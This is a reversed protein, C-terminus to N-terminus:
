DAISKNKVILTMECTTVIISSSTTYLECQYANRQAYQSFLEMLYDFCSEKMFDFKRRIHYSLDEPYIRKVKSPKVYEEGIVLNISYDMMRSTKGLPRIYYLADTSSADDEILIMNLNLVRGSPEGIVHNYHSTRFLSRFLQPVMADLTQINTEHAM